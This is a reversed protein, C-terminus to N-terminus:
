PQLFATREDLGLAPDQLHLMIKAAALPFHSQTRRFENRGGTWRPTIQPEVAHEAAATSVRKERCYEPSGVGIRQKVSTTEYM